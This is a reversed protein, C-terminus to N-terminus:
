WTNEESNQPLPKGRRRSLRAPLPSPMTLTKKQPRMSQASPNRPPPISPKSLKAMKAKSSSTTSSAAALGTLKYDLIYFTSHKPPDRSMCTMSNLHPTITIVACYDAWGCGRYHGNKSTFSIFSSSECDLPNNM